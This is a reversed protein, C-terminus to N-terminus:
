CSCFLRKGFFFENYKSIRVFLANSKESPVPENPISIEGEIFISISNYSNNKTFSDSVIINSTKCSLFVLIVLLVYNSKM